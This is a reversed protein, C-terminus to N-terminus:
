RLGYRQKGRAMTMSSVHSHVDEKIAQVTEDDEVNRQVISLAMSASLDNHKCTEWDLAPESM